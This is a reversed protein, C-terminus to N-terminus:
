RKLTTGENTKLVACFRSFNGYEPAHDYGKRYNSPVNQYTSPDYLYKRQNDRDSRSTTISMIHPDTSLVDRGRQSRQTTQINNWGQLTEVMNRSSSSHLSQEKTKYRRMTPVFNNDNVLQKCVTRPTLGRYESNFKWLQDQNREVFDRAYKRKADHEFNSLNDAKELWTLEQNKHIWSEPCARAYKKPRNASKPPITPDSNKPLIPPLTTDEQLFSFTNSLTSRFKEKIALEDNKSERQSSVSSTNSRFTSQNFHSGQSFAQVNSRPSMLNEM